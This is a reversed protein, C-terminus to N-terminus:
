DIKGRDMMLIRIRIMYSIQQIDKELWTGVADGLNRERDVLGANKMNNTSQGLVSL